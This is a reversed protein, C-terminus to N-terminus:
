ELKLQNKLEEDRKEKELKEIRFWKIMKQAAKRAIFFEAVGLAHADDEDDDDVKEM